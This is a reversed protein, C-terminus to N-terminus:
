VDILLLGDHARVTVPASITSGDNLTPDQTGTFKKYTGLGSVDITADTSTPNVLVIGTAFRCAWIGNETSASPIDDTRVGIAQENEDLWVARLQPTSDCACHYSDFMMAMCKAFRHTKYDTSEGYSMLIAFGDATNDIHALQRERVATIGGTAFTGYSRGVCGENLAADFTGSYLSLDNDANAILKVGVRHSRLATAWATNGARFASAASAPTDNTLNRDYDATVRPVAWVNDCFIYDADPINDIRNAFEWAAIYQPWRQGSGNTTTASTPNMESTGAYTSVKTGAPQNLVWWSNANVEQWATYQDEGSSEPDKLCNLRTYQAFHISPNAALLAAGYTSGNVSAQNTTMGRIVLSYRSLDTVNGADYTQTYDVAVTKAAANGTPPSPSPAPSPAPAPAASATESGPSVIKDTKPKNYEAGFNLVNSFKDRCDEPLRKRCGAIAQYGDGVEIPFVAPVEFTFEGNTYIRVKFSLGANQGDTFILLGNGFWDAAESRSSDIVVSQSTVTTVTGSVTYESADKTCRDDAFNYRCTEQFIATTDQQLAQRLDRLEVTFSGYQPVINGLKGRPWSIKGNAPTKWDYQFVEYKAGDWQGSLVAPRTFASADEIVTLENNAVALGANNAFSRVDFGPAARYTVGDIEVDRDHSTWGYVTATELADVRTVKIAWAVTHSGGALMDTMGSLLSKM